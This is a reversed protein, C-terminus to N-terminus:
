CRDFVALTSPVRKNAATAIANKAYALAKLMDSTSQYSVAGNSYEVRTVGRAIAKELKDIDSQTLSTAM